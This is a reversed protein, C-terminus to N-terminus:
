QKKSYQFGRSGSINSEMKNHAPMKLRSILVILFICIGVPRYIITLLVLYKMKLDYKKMDAFVFLSTLINLVIMIAIFSYQTLLIREQPISIFDILYPLGFQLAYTMILIIAYKQIINFYNFEM